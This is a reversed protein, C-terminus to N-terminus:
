SARSVARWASSFSPSVEQLFGDLDDVNVWRWLAREYSDLGIKAKGGGQIAGLGAYRGLPREEEQDEEEHVGNPVSHYKRGGKDRAKGKGKRDGPSPISPDLHDQGNTLRPSKRSGSSKRKPLAPRPPERFTPVTRPSVHQEPSTSPERSTTDMGSAYVSITSPGPSTSGSASSSAPGAQRFPGPSMPVPTAPLPSRPSKPTKEGEFIISRPPGGEEDESSTSPSQHQHHVRRSTPTPTPSTTEREQVDSGDEAEGENGQLERLLMTSPSDPDPNPFPFTSRSVSSYPNLLNLLSNTQPPTPTM